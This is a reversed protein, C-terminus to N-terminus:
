RDFIIRTKIGATFGVAVNRVRVSVPKNGNAASHMERFDYLLNGQLFFVYNRKKPLYQLGGGFTSGFLLKTRIPDTVPLEVPPSIQIDVRPGIFIYPQLRDWQAKLKVAAWWHLYDVKYQIPVVGKSFGPQDPDLVQMDLSSGKQVYALETVLSLQEEQYFEMNAAILLGLRPGRVDVRLDDSSEWEQTAFSIGGDLGFLPRQQATGVIGSFVAFGLLRLGRKRKM